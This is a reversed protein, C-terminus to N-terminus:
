QGAFIEREWFQIDVNGEDAINAVMILNVRQLQSFQVSGNQFGKNTQHLPVLIRPEEFPLSFPFQPVFLHSFQQL